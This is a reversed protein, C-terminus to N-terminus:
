QLDLGQQKLQVAKFPVTTELGVGRILAEMTM